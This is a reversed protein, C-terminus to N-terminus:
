GDPTMEETVTPEPAVAEEEVVIECPEFKCGDCFAAQEAPTVPYEIGYDFVFGAFRSVGPVVNEGMQIARGAGAVLRIGPVTKKKKLTM